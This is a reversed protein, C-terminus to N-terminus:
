FYGCNSYWGEALEPTVTELAEQILQLRAEETGALSERHRLWKKM